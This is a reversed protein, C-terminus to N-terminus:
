RGKSGIWPPTIGLKEQFDVWPAVYYPYNEPITVMKGAERAIQFHLHQPTTIANGSSGMVALIDGANVHQGRNVLNCANHAYYYFRGDDGDIIFSFGGLSDSSSIWSVTGSVYAVITLPQDDQPGAKDGNRFIDNAYYDHHAAVYNVYDMDNVPFCYQRGSYNRCTTNSNTPTYGACINTNSLQSSTSLQALGSMIPGVIFFSLYIALTIIAAIIVIIAASIIAPLIFKSAKRAAISAGAATAVTGAAVAGTAVVPLVLDRAHFEDGFGLEQWLEDLRRKTFGFIAEGLAWVLEVAVALVIGLGPIANALQAVAQITAKLGLKVAIKAATQAALKAVREAAIKALKKVAGELGEKLLFDAAKKLTENALKTFVRDYIYSGAKRGLWSMIAGQPDYIVNLIPQAKGLLGMSKEYLNVGKQFTTNAFKELRKIPKSIKRAFSSNTFSQWNKDFSAILKAGGKEKVIKGLATEPHAQAYRIVDKVGLKKGQAAFEEALKSYEDAADKAQGNKNFVKDNLLKGIKSEPSEKAERLVRELIAQPSATREIKGIQNKLLGFIEPNKNYLKGLESMPNAQAYAIIENVSNLNLGKSYLLVSESSLTPDQTKPSGILVAAQSGEFSAHPRLGIGPVDHRIAAELAASKTILPDQIAPFHGQVGAEILKDQITVISKRAATMQDQFERNPKQDPNNQGEVIGQEIVQETTKKHSAEIENKQNDVSQYFHDLLTTKESQSLNIQSQIQSIQTLIALQENKSKANRLAYQLNSEQLELNYINRDLATSRNDVQTFQQYLKGSQTPFGAGTTHMAVEIAVIMDYRNAVDVADTLSLYTTNEVIVSTLGRLKATDDASLNPNNAIYTDIYSGVAVTITQKAQPLLENKHDALGQLAKTYKEEEAQLFKDGQGSIRARANRIAEIKKRLLMAERAREVAKAVSHASGDNKHQEERFKEYEAVLAELDPPIGADEIVEHSKQNLQKLLNELEKDAQTPNELKDILDQVENTLIDEFAKHFYGSAWGATEKDTKSFKDPPTQSSILSLTLHLQSLLQDNQDM